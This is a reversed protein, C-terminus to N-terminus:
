EQMANVLGVVGPPMARRGLMDLLAASRGPSQTLLMQAYDPDLLARGLSQQIQTEAPKAAASLWRGGLTQGLATDAWGQPLGLPGMVERLLNAGSLYQATPSGSVKGAEQAFARAGLDEVIGNIVRMQEPTMVSELPATRGIASKVLATDDRLVSKAAASPTLRVGGAETLAPVMKQRLAEAVDMQNVPRSWAAFARDAERQKPVIEQMLDILDSRTQQWARLKNKGVTSVGKQAGEIMDDLSQKLLQLGEVSGSEMQAIQREDFIDKAESIARKISPRSLLSDVQDKLATAMGTDVGEQAAEKYLQESMLGRVGRMMARDRETGAIRGLASEMAANNALQRAALANSVEPSAAQASRELTALAPNRTGEAVTRKVGPVVSPRFSMPADGMTRRLVDGVIREQGAQRFPDILARKVVPLARMAGVGAASLGGGAVTNALLEDTSEWPQLAGYLAGYGTAGLVTNAGPAVALPAATAINGVVNGIRGGTTEMLPADIRRAEAAEQPSVAGVLQGAGRGVDAFAKAFGARLKDIASMGETPDYARRGQGFSQRHEMAQRNAKAELEALRRLAQLEAREDMM